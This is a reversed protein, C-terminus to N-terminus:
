VGYKRLLEISEESGVFEAITQKDLGEAMRVISQVITREIVTMAQPRQGSYESRTTDGTRNRGEGNTSSRCPCTPSARARLWMRRRAVKGRPTEDGPPGPYLGVRCGYSRFLPLSTSPDRM